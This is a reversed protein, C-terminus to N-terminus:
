GPQGENAVPASTAAPNSNSRSFSIGGNNGNYGSKSFSPNGGGVPRSVSGAYRANWTTKGLFYVTGDTFKWTAFTEFDYSVDIETTEGAAPLVSNIPGGLPLVPSDENKVTETNGVVTRIENLQYFPIAGTNEADILFQGAYPAAFDWLRETGDAM